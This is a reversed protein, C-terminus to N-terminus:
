ARQLERISSEIAKLESSIVVRQKEIEEIQKQKDEAAKRVVAIQNDLVRRAPKNANSQSLTEKGEKCTFEEHRLAQLEEGYRTFWDRNETLKKELENKKSLLLDIPKKLEHKAM